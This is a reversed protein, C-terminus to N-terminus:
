RGEWPVGTAAPYRATRNLAVVGIAVLYPMALIVQIPVASLWPMVQAQYQLAQLLGFTVAAALGLLPNGRSLVVLALAIFGLGASMNTVFVGSSSTLLLAAGGLAALTTGAVMGITRTGHVSAGAAALAGPAEGAAVARVGWRTRKLILYTCPAAIIALYVFINQNFVSPGIVPIDSLLPIRLRPANEM